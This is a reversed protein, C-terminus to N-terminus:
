SRGINTFKIMRKPAYLMYSLYCLLSFRTAPALTALDLKMLPALQQIGMTQSSVEVMFAEETNAIRFNRDRVVGATGGNYGATREAVSVEFIPYFNGTGGKVTRYIAYGTAPNAGGGDAFVLDVAEGAAVTVASSDLTLLASRGNANIAAVAWKYDGADGAVFKSSADTVPNSVTSSTPINPANTSNAAAGDALATQSKLFIDQELDVDGFSMTVKKPHGIAVGSDIGGGLMIRQKSYYDKAFDNLTGPSAFLHSAKGFGQEYILTGADQMEDQTLIAGKLDIVQDSEFYTLDSGSAGKIGLKHQEYIGNIDQAVTREAGFALSRNIKRLLYLTGDNVAQKMISGVGATNVLQMPHTVSKTVGYYKIKETRRIYTSDEENPLQGENYSGGREVGYNDLQNFENVTNYVATKPFLNWLRIDQQSFTLLKLERDLSEVKLAAGQGAIASDVSAGGTIQGASMAKNLEQVAEATNPVQGNEAFSAGHALNNLDLSM